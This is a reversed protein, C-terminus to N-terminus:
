VRTMKRVADEALARSQKENITGAVVARAAEMAIEAMDRRTDELFAKRENLLQEKGERVIKEVEDKTKAMALAQREEAEAHAKELLALSEAEAKDLIDTKEQEIKQLRKDLEKTHAIGKEITKQRKDLMRVIPGYIWKWFVLLVICFNILQALFLKGDIGLAAIGTAHETM